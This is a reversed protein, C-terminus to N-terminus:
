FVHIVPTDVVNIGYLTLEDQIREESEVWSGFYDEM